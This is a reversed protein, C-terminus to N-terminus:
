KFFPSKGGYFKNMAKNIKYNQYYRILCEINKLAFYIIGLIELAKLLM